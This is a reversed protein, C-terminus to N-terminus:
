DGSPFKKGMLWYKLRIAPDFRAPLMFFFAMLGILFAFAKDGESM